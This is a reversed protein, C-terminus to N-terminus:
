FVDLLAINLYNQVINESPAGQVRRVRYVQWINSERCLLESPLLKTCNLDSLQRIKTRIKTLLM